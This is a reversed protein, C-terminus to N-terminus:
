IHDFTTFYSFGNVVAHEDPVWEYKHQMITSIPEIQNWHYKRKRNSWDEEKILRYIYFSNLLVGVICADSSFYFFFFFFIYTNDV